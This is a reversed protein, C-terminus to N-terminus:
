ATKQASYALEHSALDIARRHYDHHGGHGHVQVVEHGGDDGKSLLKKLGVIASLLFALSSVTLAKMALLGLAGLAMAKMMGAMMMAIMMAGGDKKKGGGFGGGKRAESIDKIAGDVFDHLRLRVEYGSAFKRVSNLLSSSLDRANEAGELPEELKQGEIKVLEVGDWLRRIAPVAEDADNSLQAVVNRAVCGVSDAGPPCEAPLCAAGVALLVLVICTSSSHMESVSAKPRHRLRKIRRHAPCDSQLPCCLFCCYRFACFEDTARRSISRPHRAPAHARYPSVHDARAYGTSTAAAAAGYSSSGASYSDHDLVHPHSVVEYTVAHPQTLHRIGLLVAAALALKSIVVAKFVLIALAIFKLVAFISIKTIAAAGLAYLTKFKHLRATEASRGTDALRVNIHEANKDTSVVVDTEPAIAWHLERSKVFNRVKTAMLALADESGIDRPSSLEYIEPVAEPNRTLVVDETVEISAKKMLKNMYAIVKLKICASTEKQQACATNLKELVELEFTEAVDNQPKAAALAALLVVVACTSLRMANQQM